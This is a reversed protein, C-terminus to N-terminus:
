APCSGLFTRLIILGVEGSKEPHFQVGTINGCQVAACIRHGGYLTDALQDAWDIKGEKNHCAHCADCVGDEQIVMTKKM